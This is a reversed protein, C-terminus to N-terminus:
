KAAAEFSSKTLLATTGNWAGRAWRPDCRPSGPPRSARRGWKLNVSATSTAAKGATGFEPGRHCALYARKGALCGACYRWTNGCAQERGGQRKRKSLSQSPRPPDYDVSALYAVVDGSIPLVRLPRSKTRRGPTPRDAPSRRRAKARRFRRQAVSKRRFIRMPQLAALIANGLAHRSKVAGGNGYRTSPPRRFRPRSGCDGAPRGRLRDRGRDLARRFSRCFRIGRLNKGDPASRGETV